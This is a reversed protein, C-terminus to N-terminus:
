REAVVLPSHKSGVGAGPRHGQHGVWAAEACLPEPRGWGEADDRRAPNWSLTVVGREGHRRRPSPPEFTRAALPYKRQREVGPANFKICENPVNQIERHDM